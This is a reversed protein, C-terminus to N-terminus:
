EHSLGSLVVLNDDLENPQRFWCVHLPVMFGIYAFTLTLRDVLISIGPYLVLTTADM